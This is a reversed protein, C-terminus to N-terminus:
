ANAKKWRLAEDKGRQKVCNLYQGLNGWYGRLRGVTLFRRVFREWAIVQEQGLVFEWIGEDEQDAVMEMNDKTATECAVKSKPDEKLCTDLVADSVEDFLKDAVNPSAGGAIRASRARRAEM